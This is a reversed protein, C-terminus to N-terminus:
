LICIWHFFVPFLELLKAGERGTGWVMKILITDPFSVITIECLLVEVSTVYNKRILLTTVKSAAFNITALAKVDKVSCCAEGYM